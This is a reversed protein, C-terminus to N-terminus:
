RNKHNMTCVRCMKKFEVKNFFQKASDPMQFVFAENNTHNIVRSDVDDIQLKVIIPCAYVNLVKNRGNLVFNCHMRYPKEGDTANPNVFNMIVHKKM